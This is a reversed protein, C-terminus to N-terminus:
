NEKMIRFFDAVIADRNFKEWVTIWRSNGPIEKWGDEEYWPAPIQYSGAWAPNKAIAVAAMDFLARGQDAGQMEANEFLNVSYEGFSFFEGGHRGTVPTKLKHGSDAMNQRIEERTVRVAATGDDHGYRVLVMEFPVDTSLVFNLAPIDNELNYEGPDPYNAGLWVVRMKRSIEPAKSLALAVNTLKGVAIVVLPEERRERAESIMYEVAELGDYWPEDMQEWIEEFTRDAGKLLPMRGLKGVLKMVRKAEDYQEDVSGGNRTANVTVAEVDFVEENGLLYALAHQDDLENNTDTDFIVKIRSEPVSCSAFVMGAVVVWLCFKPLVMNKADFRCFSM